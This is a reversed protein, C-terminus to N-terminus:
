RCGTCKMVFLVLRSPPYFEMLYRVLNANGLLEDKCAKTRAFCNSDSEFLSRIHRFLGPSELCVFFTHDHDVLSIIFTVLKVVNIAREECEVSESFRQVTLDKSCVAFFGCVALSTFNMLSNDPFASLCLLLLCVVVRLLPFCNLLRQNGVYILAEVSLSSPVSLFNLM